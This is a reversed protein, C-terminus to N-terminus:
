EMVLNKMNEGKLKVHKQKTMLCGRGLQDHASFAIPLIQTRETNTEKTKERPKSQNM